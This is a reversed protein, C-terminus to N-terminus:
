LCGKTTLAGRAPTVAQRLAHACAKFIAEAEHHGNAGYALSLHLTVGANVAFARFFEECLCLEFEGANEQSFLARFVLFPRGSIDASAQALSEDMPIVANGYRAIGSKDGLALAFAQGLVIGCDEVSHHADVQLDGQCRLEMGFGGHVALATLMHDFFGIGSEISVEGGDLSLQLFISTEKTKRNVTANRM